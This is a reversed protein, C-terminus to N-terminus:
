NSRHANHCASCTQALPGLAGRLADLDQGAAAQLTQANTQLATFKEAFDDPDEWISPLARTNDQAANDSGEPWLRTQDLNTVHVLSDAAASALDADYDINGRTMEVLPGLNFALLKFQGQRAEIETQPSGQALAAGLTAALALGTVALLQAAKM